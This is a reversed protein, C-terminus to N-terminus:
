QGSARAEQAIAQEARSNATALVSHIRKGRSLDFIAEDLCKEFTEVCNQRWATPPWGAPTRRNVISWTREALHVAPPHGLKTELWCIMQRYKPNESIANKPAAKKDGQSGGMEGQPTLPTTNCTKMDEQILSNCTAISEPHNQCTATPNSVTQLPTKGVALRPIKGGRATPDQDEDPASATTDIGSSSMKILPPWPSKRGHNWAEWNKNIQYVAAKTGRAEIIRFLMNRRVLNTLIRRADGSDCDIQQALAASSVESSKRGYGYTVRLIFEMARHERGPICSQYLREFLENAIRLYGKELQPSAM